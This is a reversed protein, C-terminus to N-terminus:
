REPKLAYAKPAVVAATRIVASSRFRIEHLMRCRM